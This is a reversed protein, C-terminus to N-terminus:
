MSLLNSIVITRLKIRAITVTTNAYLFFPLFCSGKNPLQSLKTSLTAATTKEAKKTRGDSPRVKIKSTKHFNSYKSIQTNIIPPQIIIGNASIVMNAELFSLQKLYKAVNPMVTNLITNKRKNRAKSYGCRLHLGSM